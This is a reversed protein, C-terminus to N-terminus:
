MIWGFPYSAIILSPIFSFPICLCAMLVDALALNFLFFNETRRMNKFRVVIFCVIFNGVIALFSVLGYAVIILAQEEQPLPFAPPHCAPDMESTNGLSHNYLKVLPTSTGAM